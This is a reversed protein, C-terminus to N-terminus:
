LKKAMKMRGISWIKLCITPSGRDVFEDNNEPLKKISYPESLEAESTSAAINKWEIIRRATARKQNQEMYITQEMTGKSMFRYYTRKSKKTPAIFAPRRKIGFVVFIYFIWEPELASSKSVDDSPNWSPDFIIVRNPRILNLGLGGAKTTM